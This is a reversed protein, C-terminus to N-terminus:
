FVVGKRIVEAIMNLSTKKVIVVPIYQSLLYRLSIIKLTKGQQDPM